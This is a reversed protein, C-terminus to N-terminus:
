LPVAAVHPVAHANDLREDAIEYDEVPFLECDAINDVGSSVDVQNFEEDFNGNEEESGFIDDGEDSVSIIEEEAAALTPNCGLQAMWKCFKSDRTVALQRNLQKANFLIATGREINAQGLRVRLARHVYKAAKHNREGGSAGAPNRHVACLLHKISGYESDDCLTWLESPKMESDEFDGNNDKSTRVYTGFESFMKRRQSEDGKSLRTLAVKSQSIISGKGLQLFDEGLEDAIRTRMDDFLPDTAFALAHAETYITSLRHHTLTMMRNIDAETLHLGERVSVDLKRLHYKIAIFSAYVASFTAEDGELYTLCSAITKFLAEMSAVRKWYAPDTVLQKLDESMDIDLDSNLIEGPLSACAAKVATARQATYYVTGWRTKTFLILVYTTKYKEICLKDFLQLLLHSSKLAKVMFVVEKLAQKVGAFHKVLDMCLNHIAHPACGYAFMFENSELCDRRLKSMVSPSDSCLTFMPPNIFHENRSCLIPPLTRQNNNTAAVHLGVNVVDDGEDHPIMDAVADRSLTCGPAPKRISSLLRLKCDLLKELLNAASERRLEMTFHELFYAKPVCAMMNIVQKGQLNTAGDLTFCILPHKGLAVLVENMTEVYENRMLSGGIATRCPIQYSSRLARFFDKWAPHEFASYPTATGHIARAFLVNLRESEGPKLFDFHQRGGSFFSSSSMSNQMPSSTDVTGGASPSFAGEQSLLTNSVRSTSSSSLSQYNSSSSTSSSSSKYMKKSIPKFGADLQGIARPRKKCRAWHDKLRTCAAIIPENCANCKCYKTKQSAADDDGAALPLFPDGFNGWIPDRPRTMTEYPKVHSLHRIFSKTTYNKTHIERLCVVFWIIVIYYLILIAADHRM